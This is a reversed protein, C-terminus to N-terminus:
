NLIVTNKTNKAYNPLLHSEYEFDVFDRAVNVGPESVGTRMVAKLSFDIYFSM